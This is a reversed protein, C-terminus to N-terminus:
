TTQYKAIGNQNHLNIGTPLKGIVKEAKGVQEVAQKIDLDPEVKTATEYDILEVKYKSDQTITIEVFHGLFPGGNVYTANAIKSPQTVKHIHGDSVPLIM